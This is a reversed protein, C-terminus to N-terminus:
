AYLSRRFDPVVTATVKTTAIDGTLRLRVILTRPLKFHKVGSGEASSETADFLVDTDIWRDAVNPVSDAPSKVQLTLVGPVQAFDCLCYGDGGPWEFEASLNEGPSLRLVENAM